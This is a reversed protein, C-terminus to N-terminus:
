KTSDIVYNIFASCCVLMFQADSKGLDSEELLAHRIGGADSTYGYLSSFANKLAKHLKGEKELEQVIKGLTAKKNGSIQKALSEVASISEKISNRFDPKKKDSLHTLATQLHKKVGGYKSSIEIADEISKIEVDSTIETIQGDVFRYGSNEIELYHNCLDIFKTESEAPGNKAIFEIFDFVENWEASFYYRRIHSKCDNIYEPIADIPEKFFNLWLRKILIARNSGEVYDFTQNFSDWYYLTLVSWISNRLEKDISGLQISKSVAVIGTRKSFSM